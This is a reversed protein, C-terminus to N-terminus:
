DDEEEDIDFILSKFGLWIDEEEIELKEQTLGIIIVKKMNSLTDLQLEWFELFIEVNETNSILGNYKDKLLAINRQVHDMEFDVFELVNVIKAGSFIKKNFEKKGYQERQFVKEIYNNVKEVALNVGYFSVEMKRKESKLDDSIDKIPFNPEGFVRQYSQLFKLVKRVKAGRLTTKKINKYSIM